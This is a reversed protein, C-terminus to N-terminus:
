PWHFFGSVAHAAGGFANQVSHGISTAEHSAGNWADQAVHVTESGAANCFDHFPKVNDYAWVGALVLASAVLLVQGAVPVWGLAADVGLLAGATGVFGAGDVMGAIVAGSGVLNVIAAGQNIRQEAAPGHGPNWITGIDTVIALPLAVKGLTDLLGGAAAGSRLFNARDAVATFAKAAEIRNLGLRASEMLAAYTTEGRDYALAAPGVEESFLRAALGPLNRASQWYKAGANITMASSLITPPTTPWGLIDNLKPVAEYWGQDFIAHLQESAWQLAQQGLRAASALQEELQQEPTGSPLPTPSAVARPALYGRSDVGLGLGKAAAVAEDYARQAGELENALQNLIQTAGRGSSDM